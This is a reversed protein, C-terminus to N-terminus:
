TVAIRLGFMVNIPGDWNKIFGKSGWSVEPIPKGTDVNIDANKNELSGCCHGM